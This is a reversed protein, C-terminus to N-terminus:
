IPIVFFVRIANNGNTVGRSELIGFRGDTFIGLRIQSSTQNYDIAVAMAGYQGASNKPRINCTGIVATSTTGIYSGSINDLYLSMILLNASKAFTDVGVSGSYGSAFQFGFYAEAEAKSLTQWELAQAVANSTITEMNGSAVSDTATENSLPAVTKVNNIIKVKGIM